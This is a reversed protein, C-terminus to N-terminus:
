STESEIRGASCRACVALSLRGSPSSDLSTRRVHFDLVCSWIWWDAGCRRGPFAQDHSPPNSQGYHQSCSTAAGIRLFSRQWAFRCVGDSKLNVQFQNKTSLFSNSPGNPVDTVYRLWNGLKIVTCPYSNVDNACVKSGVPSHTTRKGYCGEDECQGEDGENKALSARMLVRARGRDKVRAKLSSITRCHSALSRLPAWNTRSCSSVRLM